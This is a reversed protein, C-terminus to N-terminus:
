MSANAAIINNCTTGGGGGSKLHMNNGTVLKGFLTILVGTRLLSSWCYPNSLKVNAVYM